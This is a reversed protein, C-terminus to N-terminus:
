VLQKRKRALGDILSPKHATALVPRESSKAGKEKSEESM